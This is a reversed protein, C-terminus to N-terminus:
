RVGSTLMRVGDSAILLFLVASTALLGAAVAVILAPREFRLHMFYGGILSAKVLMALLLVGVLLGRPIMASGTVMMGITVMLLVGWVIWYLTYRVTRHSDSM